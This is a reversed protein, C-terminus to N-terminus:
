QGDVYSTLLPHPPRMTQCVRRLYGRFWSGGSTVASGRGAALGMVAAAGAGAGYRAAANIAVLGSPAATNVVANVLVVDRELVAAKAAM